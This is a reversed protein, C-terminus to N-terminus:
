PSKNVHCNNASSFSIKNLATLLQGLEDHLERAIRTREKERVSELHASLQRLQEHSRELEQEARKRDTIDEYTIVIGKEKLSEGIRSANVFCDIDVRGEQLVSVRCQVNRETGPRRLPYGRNERIGCQQSSVALARASWNQRAGVSFLIIGDNAFSINRNKLGVVAHPIAKLLTNEFAKMEAMRNGDRGLDIKVAPAGAPHTKVLPIFKFM